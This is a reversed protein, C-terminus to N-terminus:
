SVNGAVCRTVFNLVSLNVVSFVKWTAQKLGNISSIHTYDIYTYVCVCVCV